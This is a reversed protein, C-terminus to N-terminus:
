DVFAFENSLLLVQAYNEWSGGGAVFTRGLDREDATPPRGFLVRYLQGIREGADAARAVESRAVVAKAQEAVFPNNMLYLAQQPVTTQFRQPSHTDPIAFDFTRFTGPLNQRDIFGYVTRRKTYPSKFLDVPRGGVTPDLQGSAALMSDRMAEFDLRRRNQRALLRNEPDGSNPNRIESKPNSDANRIGCEANSSQQYTASLMILKHLKKVSWGGEVFRKALWDLLEPHTPPEARVGFDSPTRV